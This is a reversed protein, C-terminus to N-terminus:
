SRTFSSMMYAKELIVKPIAVNDIPKRSERSVYSPIKVLDGNSGTGGNNVNTVATGNSHHTGGNSFAAFSPSLSPVSMFDISNLNENSGRKSGNRVDATPSSSAHGNSTLLNPSSLPTAM